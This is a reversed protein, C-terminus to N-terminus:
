ARRNMLFGLKTGGIARSGPLRVYRRGSRAEEAAVIPALLLAQTLGVLMSGLAIRLGADWGVAGFGLEGPTVFLAVLVVVVLPPLWLPTPQGAPATAPDVPQAAALWRRVSHPGLVGLLIAVIAIQVATSAAREGAEAVLVLLLVSALAGSAALVAGEVRLRERYSAPETM